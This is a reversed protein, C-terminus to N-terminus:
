PLTISVASETKNPTQNPHWFVQKFQNRKMEFIANQEPTLNVFGWEEACVFFSRLLKMKAFFPLQELFAQTVAAEEAYGEILGNYVLNKQGDPHGVFHHLFCALEYGYWHECSNDFDFLSIQTNDYRLNRITFDGHIMGFHSSTDLTKWCEQLEEHLTWAELETKPIIQAFRNWRDEHWLMRTFNCPKTFGTLATHLRGMAKGVAFSFTSLNAPHDQFSDGPCETFACVILRWDVCEFELIDKGTKSQIPQTVPVGRASLFRLMALESEIQAKNRRKSPTLRLYFTSGQRTVRYVVNDFWRVFEPDAFGWSAAIEQILPKAFDPELYERNMHILQVVEKMSM